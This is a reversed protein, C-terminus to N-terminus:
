INAEDKQVQTENFLVFGKFFSDSTKKGDKINEIKGFTRCYTGHQGKTVSYGLERWQLFTAWKKSPYNKGLLAGINMGQYEAGTKANYPITEM